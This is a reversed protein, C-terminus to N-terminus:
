IVRNDRSVLQITTAYFTQATSSNNVIHVGTVRQFSTSSNSIRTITFNNDVTGQVGVLWGFVNDDEEKEFFTSKTIVIEVDNGPQILGTGSVSYSLLNGYQNLDNNQIIHLVLLVM